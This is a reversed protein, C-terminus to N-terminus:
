GKPDLRERLAEGLFNFGLVTIVIALGPYTSVHPAEILVTRGYNLVSGWSPTGPPMGIGLFSLSAEAIITGAIGFTATVVIPSVINPWMHFVVVRWPPNGLAIAAQIYEKEKLSRIEGRVLRTYGAWGTMILAFVVNFKSAGLVTALAIALIIGPFAFVVDLLRMMVSDLRGGYYGAFSGLVMGIAVCSFTVMFGVQLSIRTGYIILSLMDTGNHDCGFWHKASPPALENPLSIAFPDYPTLWPAFLAIFFLAGVITAGTYFNKRWGINM